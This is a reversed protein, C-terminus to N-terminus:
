MPVYGLGSFDGIYGAIPKAHMLTFITGLLSLPVVIRCIHNSVTPVPNYYVLRGELLWLLNRVIASRCVAPFQLITHQDLPFNISLRDILVRTDPDDHYAQKLRTIAPMPQLTFCHSVCHTNINAYCTYHYSIIIPPVIISLFTTALHQM